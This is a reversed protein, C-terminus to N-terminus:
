HQCLGAPQSTDGKDHLWFNATGATGGGVTDDLCDYDGNGSAKNNQFTNGTAEYPPGEAWFGNSDNNLAQNNRILNNTSSWLDVGTSNQWVKNNEVVVGDSNFGIEIGDWTSNRANNNDIHLTSTGEYVVIGADNDHSDNNAVDVNGPAIVLIGVSEYTQPSYMNGSVDNGKVNADAGDNVQIGNQAISATPGIGTVTNHEIVASTGTNGSVIGGKQYDDITNDKVVGNGVSFDSTSPRYIGILVGIGNQCGSFPNDRIHTIHNKEITASGGGDVRVGYELSDCGGGGPGQITFQRITVDQAGNVRVIAKPTTMVAPAQIVAQLPKESELSLNNKGALITVQETYTGPCVKIKDGPSAATVAAQITAYDAKKCDPTNGVRIDKALATGAFGLAVATLAAASLLMRRM